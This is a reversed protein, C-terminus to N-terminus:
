ANGEVEEVEDPDWSTVEDGVKVLFAEPNGKVTCQIITGIEGTKTNRLCAPMEKHETRACADLYEQQKM